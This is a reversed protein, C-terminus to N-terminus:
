FYPSIELANKLKLQLAVNSARTLEVPLVFASIHPVFRAKASLCLGSALSEPKSIGMLHAREQM